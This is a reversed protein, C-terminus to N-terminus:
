TKRAARTVPRLAVSVSNPGSLGSASTTPPAPRATTYRIAIWGRVASVIALHNTAVIIAHNRMSTAAPRNGRRRGAARRHSLFRGVRAANREIDAELNARDLDTHVHVVHPGEFAWQPAKMEGQRVTGPCREALGLAFM